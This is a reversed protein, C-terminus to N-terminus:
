LFDTWFPLERTPRFKEKWGEPIISKDVATDEELWVWFNQGYVINDSCQHM